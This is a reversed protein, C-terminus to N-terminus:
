EETLSLTILYSLQNTDANSKIFTRKDMSFKEVRWKNGFGIVKLGKVMFGYLIYMYNDSFQM